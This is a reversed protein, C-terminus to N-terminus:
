SAAPTSHVFGIPEADDVAFLDNGLHDLLGTKRPTHDRDFITINPLSGAPELSNDAFAPDLWGHPRSFYRRM